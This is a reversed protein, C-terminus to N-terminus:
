MPDIEEKGGGACRQGYQLSLLDDHREIASQEAADAHQGCNHLGAIEDPRSSASPRVGEPTLRATALSSARTPTRRSSRVGRETDSM